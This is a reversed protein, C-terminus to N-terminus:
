QIIIKQTKGNITLLYIGSSLNSVDIQGQAMGRKITKGSLNTIQFDGTQGMIVGNTPNPFVRLAPENNENVEMLSKNIAAM